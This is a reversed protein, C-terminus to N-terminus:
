QASETEQLGFWNKIKAFVTTDPISTATTADRQVTQMRTVVEDPELADAKKGIALAGELIELGRQFSV